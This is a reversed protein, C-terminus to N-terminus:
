SDFGSARSNVSVSFAFDRIPWGANVIARAYIKHQSLLWWCNHWFINALHAPGTRCLKVYAVRLNVTAACIWLSHRAYDIAGKPSSVDYNVAIAPAIADVKLWNPLLVPKENERALGSARVTITKMNRITAVSKPPPPLRKGM